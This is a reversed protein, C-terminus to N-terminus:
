AMTAFRLVCLQRLTAEPSHQVIGDLCRVVTTQWVVGDTILGMTADKLELESEMMQYKPVFLLHQPTVPGDQLLAMAHLTVNGDMLFHLNQPKPTKPLQNWKSSSSSSMSSYSPGERFCGSFITVYGTALSVVLVIGSTGWHVISSKSSPLANPLPFNPFTNRALSFFLLNM